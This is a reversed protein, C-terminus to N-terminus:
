KETVFVPDTQKVAFHFLYPIGSVFMFGVEM